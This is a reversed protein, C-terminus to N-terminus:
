WVNNGVTTWNSPAHDVCLITAELEFLRVFVTFECKDKHYTHASNLKLAWHLVTNEM